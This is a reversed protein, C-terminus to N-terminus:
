ISNCNQNNSFFMFCRQYFLYNAIIIPFITLLNRLFKMLKSFSRLDINLTHFITANLNERLLTTFFHPFTVADGRTHTLCEATDSLCELLLCQFVCLNTM